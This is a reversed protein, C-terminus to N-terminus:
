QPKEKKIVAPQENPDPPKPAIGVSELISAPAMATFNQLKDAPGDLVKGSKLFVKYRTNTGDTIKEVKALTEHNKFTRTEVFDKGRSESSVVSEDPASRQGYSLEGPKAVYPKPTTVTTPSNFANPNLNPVGNVAGSLTPNEAGPVNVATNSNQAANGSTSTQNSSCGTAILAILLIVVFNKM